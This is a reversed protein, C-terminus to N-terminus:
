ASPWFISASKEALKADDNPMLHAYTTLTIAVSGHGLRRSVAKLSEGASILLSAHTHRLDHFRFNETIPEAKLEIARKRARMLMPTYIQKALNNREIYTGARTCFVPASGQGEGIMAARHVQLALVCPVPLQVTRRSAASKPTGLVFEGGRYALTRRVAVTGVDFDVDAWALGLLEGQRLGTGLALAFLAYLRHPAAVELFLQSQDATMVSMERAKPKALKVEAAPNSPILKLRVAHKLSTSLMAGCKRRTWASVGPAKALEMLSHEVHIPQFKALKMTGLHPILHEVLGAYRESTGPKLTPRIMGLWRRVFQAVTLGDADTLHGSDASTQLRRIKELCERKTGAYVVKRIRKGSAASGLSIRGRWRGPSVESCTGEGRGRRSAM